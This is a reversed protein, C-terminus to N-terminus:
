SKVKLMDLTMMDFTEWAMKEVNTDVTNNILSQFQMKREWVLLSATGLKIQYGEEM